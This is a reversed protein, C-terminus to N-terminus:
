DDVDRRARKGRACRLPMSPRATNPPRSAIAMMADRVDTVSGSAGHSSPARMTWDTIGRADSLTIATMSRKVAKATCNIM